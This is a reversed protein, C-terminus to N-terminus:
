VACAKCRVVVDLSAEDIYCPMVSYEGLCFRAVSVAQSILPACSLTDLFLLGSPKNPGGPSPQTQTIHPCREVGPFSLKIGPPLGGINPPHPFRVLMTGYRRQPNTMNPVV